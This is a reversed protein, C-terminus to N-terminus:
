FSNLYFLNRIELAIQKEKLRYRGEEDNLAVMLLRQDRSLKNIKYLPLLARLIGMRLNSAIDDALNERGFALASFCKDFYQKTLSVSITTACERLFEACVRVGSPLDLTPSKFTELVALVEPSLHHYKKAHWSLDFYDVSVFERGQTLQNIIIRSYESRKLTNADRLHTLIPQIWLASSLGAHLALHRLAGDESLLVADRELALFVADASSADLSQALFRQEQTIQTPGFTPVVECQTNVFELIEKLFQKRKQFYKEPIDDMYFNGNEERMTSTAKASDNQQLLGLLQDKITQPILPAGTVQPIIGLLDNRTLEVLTSLDLVYRLKDKKLIEKCQQREAYSGICVFLKSVKYPWELLLTVPDSGLADALISIPVPQQKYQAFVKKVYSSRKKLSELIPEIDLEGNPKSLNVGWLPGAQGASAAIVEHAKRSAFLLIDEISVIRVETNGLGRDILATDGVKKGILAIAQPSNPQVVEPWTDLTPSVSENIAIWRTEHSIQIQVATGPRVVDGAKLPVDMGESILWILLYYGAIRSDQPHTKLLQFIRDIAQSAFGYNTQYKAFEFENEAMGEKFSPNTALYEKLKEVKELRRLVGVYGVAIGSDSPNLELEIKLLDHLRPANGTSWALNIEIRRFVSTERIAQPLTDLVRRARNRQDSEVLCILFRQTLQGWGNGICLKEYLNAADNFLKFDYLLDAVQLISHSSSTSNILSLCLNAQRESDSARGLRRLMKALNVSLLVNSPNSSLLSKAQEIAEPRKGSAWLSHVSLAMLDDTLNDHIESSYLKDLIAECRASDGQNSFIEALLVLAGTPLEDIRNDSLTHLAAIDENEALEGIHIRLLGESLPHRQLARQAVRRSRGEEGHLSLAIAINNTVELSATKPQLTEISDEIPEFANIATGLAEMQADSIQGYHAIVYDTTAWIVATALVARKVELSPNKLYCKYALEFAEQNKGQKQRVYSLTFLIDEEELIAQPLEKDPSENNLLLQAHIKLAWLMPSNPLKILCAECFALGANIENQILLARVRNAQAKEDDPAYSYAVLFENAAEEDQGEALLCAAVNTHWRFKTFNDSSAVEDKYLDLIERAQLFLHARIKDRALDLQKALIKNIENGNSQPASFNNLGALIADIKLEIRSNGETVIQIQKKQEAPYIQQPHDALDVVHDIKKGIEKVLQSTEEIQRRDIFKQLVPQNKMAEEVFSFLDSVAEEINPPTSKGFQERYAEIVASVDPTGTRTLYKAVEPAVYIELVYGDFLSIAIDNHKKTFHEFGEDTATELSTKIAAEDDESQAVDAVKQWLWGAFVGIATEILM